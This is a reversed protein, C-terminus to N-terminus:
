AGIHGSQGIFLVGGVCLATLLLIAAIALAVEGLQRAVRARSGVKRLSALDISGPALERAPAPRVGGAGRWKSAFPRTDM